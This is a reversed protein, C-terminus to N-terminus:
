SNTELPARGPDVSRGSEAELRRHVGSIKERIPDDLDMAQTGSLDGILLIRRGRIALAEPTRPTAIEHQV